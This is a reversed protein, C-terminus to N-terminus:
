PPSSRRRRLLCRSWCYFPQHMNSNLSQNFVTVRFCVRQLCPWTDWYDFQFLSVESEELFAFRYAVMVICAIAGFGYSLCLCAKSGSVTMTGNYKFVGAKWQLVYQTNGDKTTIPGTQNFIAMCIAIVSANTLNGM